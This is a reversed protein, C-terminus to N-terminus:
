YKILKIELPKSDKKFIITAQNYDPKAFPKYNNGFGVPEKPIPIFGHDLKGNNNVDQYVSIAFNGEPLSFTFELENKSAPVSQAAFPKELWDKPNNFIAVNLKGKNIEINTIRIKLEYKTTQANANLCFLVVLNLYFLIKIM